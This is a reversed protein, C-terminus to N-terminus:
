YDDNKALVYINNKGIRSIKFDNNIMGRKFRAKVDISGLCLQARCRGFKELIGIELSQITRRHLTTSQLLITLYGKQVNGNSKQMGERM